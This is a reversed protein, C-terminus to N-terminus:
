VSVEIPQGPNLVVSKQKAQHRDFEAEVQYVLKSRASRSYIIPPTYEPIPSIFSIVANIGSRCADCFIQVKQGTKIKSLSPEDIFFIVKIDNPALISLVAQNSPAQEGIRYYTDFVQAFLPSFVTKQQLNWQAKELNSKANQLQAQLSKIQGERGALNGTALNAQYQKVMAEAVQLNQVAIDLQNQEIANKKVLIQKRAVDKQAYEAQAQAQVIQASIASLESPRDGTMRDALDAAVQNVTALSAKVEFSQPQAELQFLEDGSKVWQGRNVSLKILKGNIPSSIYTLRGEIYGLYKHHRECATLFLLMLGLIIKVSIQLLKM